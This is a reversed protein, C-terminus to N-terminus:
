LDHVSRVAGIIGVFVNKLLDDFWFPDDKGMATPTLISRAHVGHGRPGELLDRGSFRLHRYPHDKWRGALTIKHDPFKAGNFAAFLSQLPILFMEGSHRARREDNRALEISRALQYPFRPGFAFM